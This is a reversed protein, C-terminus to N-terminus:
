DEFVPGALISKGGLSRWFAFLAVAGILLLV